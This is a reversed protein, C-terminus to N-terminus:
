LTLSGNIAISHVPGIACEVTLEATTQQSTANLSAGSANTFSGGAVSGGTYVVQLPSDTGVLTSITGGTLAIGSSAAATHKPSWGITGGSLDPLSGGTLMNCIGAITGSSALGSLHGTKLKTGGKISCAPVRHPTLNGRVSVTGTDSVALTGHFNCTTTGTATRPTPPGGTASAVGTGVVAVMGIALAAATSATVLKRVM